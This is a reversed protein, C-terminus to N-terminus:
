NSLDKVFAYTKIASKSYREPPFFELNLGVHGLGALVFAPIDQTEYGLKGALGSLSARAFSRGRRLAMLMRVMDMFPYGKHAMGGWDIVYFDAEKRAQPLLLNGIWFDGHQLCHGPGWQGQSLRNLATQADHRMTKPFGTESEVCALSAEYGSRDEHQMTEWAFATAWGIISHAHLYRRAVRRLRDSTEFPIHAPWVAFDFGGADGTIFPPLIASATPDSVRSRALRINDVARGILAPNGSGSTILVGSLNDPLRAFYKATADAPAASPEQGALPELADASIATNFHGSLATALAERTPAAEGAM